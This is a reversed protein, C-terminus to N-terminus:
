PSWAAIAPRSHGPEGVRRRVARRRDAPGTEALYRRVDAASDDAPRCGGGVICTGPLLCRAGTRDTDRRRGADGSWSRSFNSRVQEISEGQTLVPRRVARREGERALRGDQRGSAGSHRHADHGHRPAAGHWHKVGPPISVWTAPAFATVGLMLVNTVAVSLPRRPGGPTGSLARGAGRGHVIRGRYRAPGRGDTRRDRRRPEGGPSAAQDHGSDARDVAEAGAALGARDAGADGAEAGRDPRAARGAVQNAKRSEPSFRPVINRFDTSDFQTKEDIKGTLFGKGLRASRCSASAWNKSRRCCRRRRSAGGCRTNARCRRWRSCRTRAASRRCARRPCASTGSRARGRDAGEGRRRRGRDARESRRPAPLAPRHPRHQLRKLSAEAVARIHEPRSDLGRRQRRRGQFGFKTAIVVQDRVPALAEGM